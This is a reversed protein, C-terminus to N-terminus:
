KSLGFLFFDRSFFSVTIVLGTDIAYVIDRIIRGKATHWIEGHWAKLRYELLSRFKPM